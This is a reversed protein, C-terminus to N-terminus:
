GAVVPVEVQGLVRTEGLLVITLAPVRVESAPVTLRFLQPVKTSPVSTVALTTTGVLAGTIAGENLRLVV